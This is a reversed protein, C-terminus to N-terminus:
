PSPSSCTALLRRLRKFIVALDPKERDDKSLTVAGDHVNASEDAVGIPGTETLLPSAHPPPRDRWDRGLARHGKPSSTSNPVRWTRKGLDSQVKARALADSLTLGLAAFGGKERM